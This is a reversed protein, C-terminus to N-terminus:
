EVLGDVSGSVFYGGDPSFLACECHAKGGLKVTKHLRSPLQEDEVEKVSTRGRFLDISTGPPLIGCHQQWKVAQQLLTLLRSPPAVTVASALEEAITARKMDRSIGEGYAQRADFFDQAMLHELRLYRDPDNKKLSIMPDTQRLLSRAAGIEKMEILELVIQEYLLKLTEDPLKLHTITKLVTDWHGHRVDVLFTELNDVVNMTIGTEALLSNYTEMLNNEKLYQLVICIVDGSEIELSALGEAM